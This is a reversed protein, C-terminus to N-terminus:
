AALDGSTGGGTCLGMSSSSRIADISGDLSLRARQMTRTSDAQPWFVAISREMDRECRLVEAPGLRDSSDSTM